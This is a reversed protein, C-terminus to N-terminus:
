VHARGIKDGDTLVGKLTRDADTVFLIGKGNGDLKRLADAVTCEPGILFPTLKETNM